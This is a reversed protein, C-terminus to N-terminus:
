VKELKIKGTKLFLPLGKSNLISFGLKWVRFLDYIGIEWFSL